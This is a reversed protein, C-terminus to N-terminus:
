RVLTTILSGVSPAVGTDKVSINGSVKLGNSYLDYVKGTGAILLFNDTVGDLSILLDVDTNNLIDIINSPTANALAVTYAGTISGFPYQSYVPSAETPTPPTATVIGDVTISNGGDQINVAAAGPGNVVTVASSPGAGSLITIIQCLLIGVEQRASTPDRMLGILRDPCTCPDCPDFDAM